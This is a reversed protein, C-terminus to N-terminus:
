QVQVSCDLLYICEKIKSVEKSPDKKYEAIGKMRNYVSHEIFHEKVTGYKNLIEKM